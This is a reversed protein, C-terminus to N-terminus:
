RPVIKGNVVQVFNIPSSNRSAEETDRDSIKVPSYGHMTHTPNVNSASSTQSSASRLSSFLNAQYHQTPDTPGYSNSVEPHQPLIPFEDTDREKNKPQYKCIDSEYLERSDFSVSEGLAQDLLRDLYQGKVDIEGSVSDDIAEKLGARSSDRLSVVQTGAETLSRPSVLIEAPHCIKGGVQVDKPPILAVGNAYIIKSDGQGNPNSYVTPSQYAQYSSISPYALGHFITDRLFLATIPEHLCRSNAVEFMDLYGARLNVDSLSKDFTHSCILFSTFITKPIIFVQSLFDDNMQSGFLNVAAFRNIGPMQTVQNFEEATSRNYLTQKRTLEFCVSNQLNRGYISTCGFSFGLLFGSNTSVIGSASCQVDSLPHGNLQARKQKFYMLLRARFDELSSSVAFYDVHNLMDDGLIRVLEGSYSSSSQEYLVMNLNSSSVVYGLDNFHTNKTNIAEFHDALSRDVNFRLSM